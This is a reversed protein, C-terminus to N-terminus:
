MQRVAVGATRGFNAQMRSLSQRIYIVRPKVVDPAITALRGITEIMNTFRNLYFWPETTPTLSQDADPIAWAPGATHEGDGAPLRTIIEALPRVVMTMMPAFACDQLAASIKGNAGPGPQSEDNEPVYYAYFSTLMYLMTTYAYDFLAMATQAVQDKVNDTSPNTIVNWAADFDSAKMGDYIWSFSCYHSADSPQASVGEGEKLIEDIAANATRRDYVPFVFVNAEQSFVFNDYPEHERSEKQNEFVFLNELASINHVNNIADQIADYLVQISDIRPYSAPRVDVDGSALLANYRPASHLAIIQPDPGCDDPSWVEPREFVIFREISALGFRELIMPLTFPDYEYKVPFSPRQFYPPAGIGLRLNNVLALHEMEQRAIKYITAQWRRTIEYQAPSLAPGYPSDPEDAKKMTFAAYLYQCMLVHELEAAEDLARVLEDRNQIVLQTTTTMSGDPLLGAPRLWRLVAVAFRARLASAELGQM